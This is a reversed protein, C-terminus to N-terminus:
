PEEKKPEDDVAESGNAPMTLVVMPGGGPAGIELQDKTWGLMKCLLEQAREKSHLELSTSGGHQTVSETIKKIAKGQGPKYNATPTFLVRGRVNDIKAFHSMDAFAVKALEAIMREKTVGLLAAKKNLDNEQKALGIRIAAQIQPKKLYQHGCTGATKESYGAEIAARTANKHALYAKVFLQQKPNLAM